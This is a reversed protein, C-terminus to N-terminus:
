QRVRIGIFGTTGFIEYEASTVFGNLPIQTNFINKVGGYIEANAFSTRLKYNFDIDSYYQAPIQCPSLSECHEVRTADRNFLATRSVYRGRYGVTWDGQNYTLNLTGRESPVGVTGEIINQINPFQQFPTNRNAQVWNALVSVSLRGDLNQLVPLGQTWEGVDHAYAVQFDVGHTQLAAANLFQSKVTQINFARTPDSGPVRTVLGCFQQNLGPADVCNNIITQIAPLTIANLININYYDATFIFSPLWQPQYVLGLTYTHATENRLTGTGNVLGGQTITNISQATQSHFNTPLGLAACNATRNVNLGINQFDCPDTINAFGPSIPRFAEDINPARTASSATGRFKLGSVVSRWGTLDRSFPEYLFNLNWTNVAGFPSYKAQRVAGGVTFEEAFAYHKLLPAQIELYGEYVNFSGPATPAAARFTLGQLALPDNVNISREQRYEAGLAFSLPGGPFNFFRSTDSRFNANAVEQTIKQSESLTAEAWKFFAAGNQQGFPNFPVCNAPNQTIGTPAVFGTPQASPVNIRCAAKGTAPDIVSDLAARFNGPLLEGNDVFSNNTEGYNLAADYHVEFAPLDFKGNLGTVVRYTERTTTDGRAGGIFATYTLASNSLNQGTASNIFANLAPTRFANDPRISTAFTKNSGDNPSISGFAFSPQFVSSNETNVYKADVTLQVNPTLDYRLNTFFGKRTIEPLINVFDQGFFCSPCPFPLQGFANNNTGLRLPQLLPNGAADFGINVGGAGGILLVGNRGILESGVNNVIFTDPIGDNPKPTCATASNLPRPTTCDGFNVITSANKLAKIQDSTVADSHDYILSFVVNGRGEQFDSGVSVSANYGKDYGGFASNYSFDAEVGEIHKKTIINVVGTVADSGYIASAGGTTVEVRDVLTPPISNLDVGAAGAAGPVHRQGDVLTLTRNAGLNRLNPIDLGSNQGGNEAGRISGVFGLAPIQSIVDGLNTVGSQKIEANGLVAVPTPQDVNPRPIRSGTVILESVDVDKVVPKTTTQQASAVGPVTLCAATAVSALLTSRISKMVVKM